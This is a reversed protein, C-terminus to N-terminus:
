DKSGTTFYDKHKRFMPTTLYVGLLIVLLSLIQTFSITEGYIWGWFLAVGPIVFTVASAFVVSSRKILTYLLVWALATGVMGLVCTALTSRLYVAEHFPLRFFGTFWLVIGSPIILSVFSLTAITLAPLGSLKYKVINNNFGYLITALVIFGGYGLADYSIKNNAAFLLIIGAFGILLGLIHIRSINNKYVVYGVLIAFFPTLANLIGALGSDIKTEAVCFLFAPFFLGLFGTGILYAWTSAPLRSVKAIFFPLLTIGASFVRLAAVQYASLVEHNNQDYLGLKMLIFSSGWILSIVVFLFLNIFRSM